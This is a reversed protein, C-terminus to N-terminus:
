GFRAELQNLMDSTDCWTGGLAKTVAPIKVKLKVGRTEETVVTGGECLAHAILWADAGKLFHAAQHHAFKNYVYGSVRGLCEEQVDKSARICLGNSKRAKCWKSLDDGFWVIEEYALRPMKIEGSALKEDIFTWFQPVRVFPYAKKEAQILVSADIWFPGV